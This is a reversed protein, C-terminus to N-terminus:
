KIVYHIFDKQTSRESVKKQLSLFSTLEVLYTSEYITRYKVLWQINNWGRKTILNHQLDYYTQNLVNITENWHTNQIHSYM